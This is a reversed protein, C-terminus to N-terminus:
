NRTISAGGGLLFEILIEESISHINQQYCINKCARLYVCMQLLPPLLSQLRFKRAVRRHSLLVSAPNSNHFFLQPNIIPQQSWVRRSRPPTSRHLNGRAGRRKPPGGDSLFKFYAVGFHAMKLLMRAPGKQAGRSHKRPGRQPERSAQSPNTWSQSSGWYMIESHTWSPLPRLFCSPNVGGRKQL